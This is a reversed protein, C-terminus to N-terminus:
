PDAEHPAPRTGTGLYPGDCARSCACTAGACRYCSRTGHPGPGPAACRGRERPPTFHVGESDANVLEAVERRADTVLAAAVEGYVHETSNANGFATTMAHLVITAVRPDVPTTAHYDLYIPPANPLQM